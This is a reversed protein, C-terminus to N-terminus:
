GDGMEKIELERGKQYTSIQKSNVQENAKNLNWMHM